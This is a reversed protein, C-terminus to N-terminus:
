VDPSLVVAIGRGQEVPCPRWVYCREKREPIDALSFRSPLLNANELQVADFPIVERPALLINAKGGFAEIM